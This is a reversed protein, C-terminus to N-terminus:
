KDGKWARRLQDVAYCCENHDPSLTSGPDSNCVRRIAERLENDIAYERLAALNESEEIFWAWQGAATVADQVAKYFFDTGQSEFGFALLVACLDKRIAWDLNLLEIISCPKGNWLGFLINRVKYCQGSRGTLVERCLRALAARGNIAAVRREDLETRMRAFDKELQALAEPDDTNTEWQEGNLEFTKKSM